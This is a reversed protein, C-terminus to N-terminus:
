KLVKRIARRISEDMNDKLHWGRGNPEYEYNGNNSPKFVHNNDNAIYNYWDNMGDKYKMIEEDTMYDSLEIREYNDNFNHQTSKELHYGDKEKIVPYWTGYPHYEGGVKGYPNILLKPYMGNGSFTGCSFFATSTKFGYKENFDRRSMASFNDKRGGYSPNGLKNHFRAANAYTKWDLESLVQRVSEKIVNHLQSSTLRVKNRTNHM